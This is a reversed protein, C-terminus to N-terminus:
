EFETHVYDTNHAFYGLRLISKGRTQVFNDMKDVFKQSLGRLVFSTDKKLCQKETPIPSDNNKIISSRSPVAFNIESLSPKLEEDNM